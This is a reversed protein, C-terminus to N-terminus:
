DVSVAEVCVCVPEVRPPRGLRHLYYAYVREKEGPSMAEFLEVLLQQKESASFQMEAPNPIPAPKVSANM